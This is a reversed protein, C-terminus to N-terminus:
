ASEQRLCAQGRRSFGMVREETIVGDLPIDWPDAPLRQDAPLGQLEHALGIRLAPQTREMPNAYRDYFGGGMGLRHGEADFSVLPLLMINPVFHSRVNASPPPELLDYHGNVLPTTPIYHTFHMRLDGTPKKRLCPLGVQMDLALLKNLLPWTNIEGDAPLYLAFRDFRLTLLTSAVNHTLQAAHRQQQTDSLARRAARLERRLGPKTTARPAQPSTPRSPPRSSPSSLKLPHKTILKKPDPDPM